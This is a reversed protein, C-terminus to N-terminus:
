TTRRGAKEAEDAARLLGAVLVRAERIGFYQDADDRGDYICLAIPYDDEREPNFMATPDAEIMNAVDYELIGDLRERMKKGIDLLGEFLPVGENRVVTVARDDWLELMGGCKHAQVTLEQGLHTRCFTKVKATEVDWDEYMPAVRATIIRVEIGKALWSKVREVMPPIPEGVAPWQGPQYTALTGDFDVAIYTRM